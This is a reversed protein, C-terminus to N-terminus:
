LTAGRARNIRIRMGPNIFFYNPQKFKELSVNANQTNEYIGRVHVLAYRLPTAHQTVHACLFGKVYTVYRDRVM